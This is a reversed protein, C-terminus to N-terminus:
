LIKGYIEKCQSRVYSRIVAGMTISELKETLKHKKGTKDNRVEAINNEARDEENVIAKNEEEM